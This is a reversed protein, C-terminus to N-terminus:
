NLVSKLIKLQFNNPINYNEHLFKERNKIFNEQISKKEIVNKINKILSNLDSTLVVGDNEELALFVSNGFKVEIAIKGMVISDLLTTSEVSVLTDAIHIFELLNGQLIVCNLCDHKKIIEDYKETPESAPHPKLIVFYDKNNGFSELLKELVQEDYNRTGDSKYSDQLKSTTFLIIKKNKPINYKVKLDQSNFIEIMKEINFYEPNGFVVIKNEPYGVRTLFKKAAIGYVLSVDPIPIGFPNKDSHIDTHSYDIHKLIHFGGHQVAITKIDLKKCVMIMAIALSGKEYPIVVAKPKNSILFLELSKMLQFFTPLYPFYTMKKFDKFIKDWFHIGNFSFISKFNPDLIIKMYHNLLKKTDVDADYENIISELPIWDMPDDLREELVDHNGRFTYDVDIGVTDLKMQKAFQKINNLLFEGRITKQKKFDFYNRWYATASFFVLKDHFSISEHNKSKFLNIRKKIKKHTINAYHYPQGTSKIWDKFQYKFFGIKSYSFEINKKQCIQQIIRLKDFEGIVKISLPKKEDIIKEFEEIFNITGCLNPHLSPTIFWWYSFNSFEFLSTFKKGNLEINYIKNLFDIPKSWYKSGFPLSLDKEEIFLIKSDNTSKKGYFLKM